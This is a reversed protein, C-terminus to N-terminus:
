AVIETSKTVTETQRADIANTVVSTHVAGIWHRVPRGDQFLVLMPLGTTSWPMAHSEGEEVRCRLLSLRDGYRASLAARVPLFLRSFLCDPAWFEVLALRMESIDALLRTVATERWSTTDLRERSVM